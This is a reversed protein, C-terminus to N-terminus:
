LIAIIEDITPYVSIDGFINIDPFLFNYLLDDIDLEQGEETELRSAEICKDIGVYNVLQEKFDRDLLEIIKLGAKDITHQIEWRYLEDRDDDDDDHNNNYWYCEYAGCEWKEYFLKITLDTIKKKLEILQQEM